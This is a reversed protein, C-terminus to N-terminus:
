SWNTIASTATLVAFIIGGGIFIAGEIRYYPRDRHCNWWYIGENFLMLSACLFVAFYAYYGEKPSWLSLVTFTVVLIGYMIHFLDHGHNPGKM